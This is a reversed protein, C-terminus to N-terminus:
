IERQVAIDGTVGRLSSTYFSHEAWGSVKWKVDGCCPANARCAAKNEPHWSVCEGISCNLVSSAPSASHKSVAAAVSSWWLERIAARCLSCPKLLGAAQLRGKRRQMEAWRRLDRIQPATLHSICLRTQKTKNANIIAGNKQFIDLCAAICFVTGLILPIGVHDINFKMSVIM